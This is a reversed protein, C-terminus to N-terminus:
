RGASPNRGTSEGVRAKARRKAPGSPERRRPPRSGREILGERLGGKARLRREVRAMRGRDSSSDHDYGVLHLLGHLALIRLEVIDSHGAERAQRRATQTSIVIDGSARSSPHPDLHVTEPFTLVDTPADMRRFRRNLERIRADSVLAIVVEGSVARPVVRRLWASLGSLRLPRGRGDVVAIQVERDAVRLERAAV